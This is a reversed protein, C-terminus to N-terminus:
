DALRKLADKVRFNKGGATQWLLQGQWAAFLISANERGRTGGGLRVALAREVQARWAEARTRLDPDRFDAALLPLEDVQRVVEDLRIALTAVDVAGTARVRELDQVVARRVGELRPQDQRSLREDAQKLAFDVPGQAQTWHAGGVSASVKLM